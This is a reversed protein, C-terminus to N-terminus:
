RFKLNNLHNKFIFFLFNLIGLVISTNLIIKKKDILLLFFFAKISHNFLKRLLKIIRLKKMKYDFILEGFIFNKNRIFYTLLTNTTSNGNKHIIKAGKSLFINYKSNEIRRSLEVDEWYFFFDEDFMGIKKFRKTKSLFCAGIMNKTIQDKKININRNVLPVSIVSDKQNNVLTKKLNKITRLSIEVDIQTCLFYDTTVKSVLFNIGKSFGLNEKRLFYGQINPLIKQIKTKLEKDDSQDLIIIKFQKFVKLNKILKKPTRYFLLIITIDSIM